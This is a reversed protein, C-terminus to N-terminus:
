NKFLIILIVGINIPLRRLVCQDSSCALRVSVVSATGAVPRTDEAAQHQGQASASASCAPESCLTGIFSSAFGGCSATPLGPIQCRVARVPGFAQSPM